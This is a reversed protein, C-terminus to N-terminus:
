PRNGAEIQDPGAPKAGASLGAATELADLRQDLQIIASLCHLNVVALNCSREHERILERRLRLFSLSFAIRVSDWVNAWRFTLGQATDRAKTVEERIRRLEAAHDCISYHNRRTSAELLQALQTLQRPSLIKPVDRLGFREAVTPVAPLDLGVENKGM